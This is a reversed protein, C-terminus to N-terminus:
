EQVGFLTRASIILEITVRKIFGSMNDAALLVSRLEASIVVPLGLRCNSLEPYPACTVPLRPGPAPM